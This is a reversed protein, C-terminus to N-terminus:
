NPSNLKVKGFNPQLESSHRPNGLIEEPIEVRGLGPLRVWLFISIKQTWPDQQCPIHRRSKWWTAEWWTSKWRGPKRRAHGAYGANRVHWRTRGPIPTAPDHRQSTSVTRLTVEQTWRCMRCQCVRHILLTCIYNYLWYMICIIIYIYNYTCIYVWVYYTRKRNECAHQEWLRSKRGPKGGPKGDEDWSTVLTASYLRRRRNRPRQTVSWHVEAQHYWGILGVSSFIDPPWQWICRPNLHM